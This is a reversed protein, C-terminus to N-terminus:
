KQVDQTFKNLDDYTSDFNVPSSNGFIKPLKFQTKNSIEEENAETYSADASM